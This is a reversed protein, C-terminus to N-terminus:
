RGTLFMGVLLLLIVCAAGLAFWIWAPLDHAKTPRARLEDPSAKAKARYRSILAPETDTLIPVATDQGMPRAVPLLPAASIPARGPAAELRQARPLPAAVGRELPKATSPGRSDIDGIARARRLRSSGGDSAAMSEAVQVAAGVLVPGSGGLSSPGETSSSDGAANQSKLWQGLAAAVEGASQFRDAAKKAMMRLCIEVLDPPADPRDKRIDPPPDKQHAMLRQPLTGDPFPPHGTLLFYFTCGLSYIDARADVAHSDIAQEPALYDATGLVNEDYAVTLSAQDDEATFRALGLDLIKVAGKSDVLLNAPKVDRHIFGAAHAHGLGRAAQYIYRAADVYALPGTERVTVNLDSGEVYEMVIYHTDGENDIDYAQVINAHDLAAVARAERHFRELYSSSTDDVRGKPLVKIAVRRHMLLHEALYVSSMGGTGLHGLLKYKGVFFGKHRGELLKDAQWRTLLEAEVLREALWAADRSDGPESEDELRHLLLNLRDPDVLKSRRVLDLFIEATPKPM